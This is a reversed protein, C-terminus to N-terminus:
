YEIVRISNKSSPRIKAQQTYKGGDATSPAKVKPKISYDIKKDLAPSAETAEWATAGGEFTGDVKRSRRRPKPSDEAKQKDPM